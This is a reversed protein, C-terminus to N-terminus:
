YSRVIIQAVKKDKVYFDTGKKSGTSYKIYIGGAKNKKLIKGYVKVLAQEDSNVSIGEQTVFLPSNIIFSFIKRNADSYIELPYNNDKDKTGFLNFYVIQGEYETDRGSKVPKMKLLKIAESDKIGLKAKGVGENLYIKIPEQANAVPLWGGKIGGQYPPLSNFPSYPFNFYFIGSLILCIFFIKKM